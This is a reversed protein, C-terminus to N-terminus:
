DSYDVKWQGQTPSSVNGAKDKSRISLIYTKGPLLTLSTILFEKESNGRSYSMLNQWNLSAEAQDKEVIAFEWSDFESGYIITGENDQTFSFIPSQDTQSFLGQSNLGKLILNKPAPPPTLDVGFGDGITSQSYEGNANVTRVSAYYRHSDSINEELYLQSFQHSLNKGVNVWPAINASGPYLGLAVEYHDVDQMKIPATWTIVPSTDTRNWFIKDDISLPADILSLNVKWSDSIGPESRNGVADVAIIQVRYDNGDNLHLNSFTYNNTLSMDYIGMSNWTAGNDASGYLYIEYKHVGTGLDLSESWSIPPSNKLSAMAVGDSINTPTTPPTLDLVYEPSPGYCKSIKTDRQFKAYFNLRGEPLISLPQLTSSNGTSTGEAIKEQCAPEKFLYIKDNTRLGEIKVQPRPNNSITKGIISILLQESDLPNVAQLIESNTSALDSIEIKGVACNQFSILIGLGSLMIFLKIKNKTNLQFLRRLHIKRM